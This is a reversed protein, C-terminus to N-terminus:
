IFCNNSGYNKNSDTLMPKIWEFKHIHKQYPKWYINLLKKASEVAQEL